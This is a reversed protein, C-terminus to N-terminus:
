LHEGDRLELMYLRVIELEPAYSPTDIDPIIESLYERRGGYKLLLKINEVNGSHTAMKLLFDTPEQGNQLLYELFENDDRGMATNAFGKIGRGYYNHNIFWSTFPSVMLPVKDGHVYYSNFVYSKYGEVGFPVMACLGIIIIAYKLINKERNM